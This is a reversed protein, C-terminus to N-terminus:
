IETFTEVRPQTGPNTASDDVELTTGSGFRCDRFVCYSALGNLIMVADGGATWGYFKGNIIKVGPAQISLCNIATGKTYSVGPMFHIEMDTKNVIIAANVAAVNDLVLVKAGNPIGGDAMVDELTDHTAVPNSGTDGVIASWTAVAFGIEQEFYKNWEDQLKTNYNFFQAPPREDPVWGSAKKASGPEVVPAGVDTAWDLHKTPKSLM